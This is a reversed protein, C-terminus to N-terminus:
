QKKRKKHDVWFDVVSLTGSENIVEDFNADTFEMVHANDAM